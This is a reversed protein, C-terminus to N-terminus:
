LATQYGVLGAGLLWRDSLMSVSEQWISKRVKGSWDKLQLKKSVVSSLPSSVMVALIGLITIIITRKRATESM